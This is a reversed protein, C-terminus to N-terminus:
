ASAAPSPRNLGVINGLLAVLCCLAVLGAYILVVQLLNPRFVVQSDPLSAVWEVGSNMAGAVASLCHAIASRLTSIYAMTALPTMILFIASGYLLLTACAVVIINSLLSCLPVAGFYYAVLPATGIQASLSLLSMQVVWRVPALRMLVGPMARSLPSFVLTIALMSMFSLQFGIDYLSLPDAILLVTAAFALTNLSLTDHRLLQCFAYASIMTAARMASKPMGVMAVFFWLSAVIFLQTLLGRVDSTTKLGRRGGFLLALLTYIITLHLGSLALIHSAGAHSYDARTQPLLLSKDGLTLAAVVALRQDSINASSYEATLKSRLRMARIGARKLLSLRHLSVAEGKYANTPIFTIAAVDTFPRDPQKLRSFARIGDGVDLQRAYSDKSFFARVPIVRTCTDGELSTVEILCGISNRYEIPPNAIVATYEVREEYPLVTTVLSKAALFGGTTFVVVHVLLSSLLPLVSDDSMRVAPRGCLITCIAAALTAVLAVSLWLTPQRYGHCATVIGAAICLAVTLLPTLQLRDSLTPRRM